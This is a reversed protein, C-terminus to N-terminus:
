MSQHSCAADIVAFWERSCPCKEHGVKEATEIEVAEREGVSDKERRHRASAGGFGMDRGFHHAVIEHLAGACPQHEGVAGRNRHLAIAHDTTRADVVLRLNVAPAHDGVGNVIGASADIALDPM